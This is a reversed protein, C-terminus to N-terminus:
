DLYESVDSDSDSDEEVHVPMSNKIMLKTQQVERLLVKVKVLLQHLLCKAGSSSSKLATEIIQQKQEYFSITNQTEM